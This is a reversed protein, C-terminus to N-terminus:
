RRGTTLRVDQTLTFGGSADRVAELAQAASALVDARRDPPVFDWIARQGHSLSWRHWEDVDGFRVVQTHRHTTVDALGADRLLRGVGEDTAFPGRTGTTRADLHDPPLFPRFADDLRDWEPSQPAFTAVAMRGGPALLDAWARVGAGPDPLFFLVLSSLVVDFPGPASPEAADDRVVEVWGLGRRRAEDATAAVMRASLDLATVHGTPGVAEAAPWLAAGRGTGVDLVREGPQPAAVAVLAEAIPTFWPVGTSDYTDAVEDFSAAVAERRRAGDDPEM